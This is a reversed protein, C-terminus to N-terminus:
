RRGDKRTPRSTVLRPGASDDIVEDVVPALSGARSYTASARPATTIGRRGARGAGDSIVQYTKGWGSLGILRSPARSGRQLSECFHLHTSQCPASHLEVPLRGDHARYTQGSGEACETGGKTKFGAVPM